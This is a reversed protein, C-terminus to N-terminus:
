NAPGAGGAAELKQFLTGIISQMRRAMELTVVLRSVVVSEVDGEKPSAPVSCVFTLMVLGDARPSVLIGDGYAPAGLSGLNSFADANTDAKAQTM